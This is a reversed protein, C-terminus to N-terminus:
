LAYWYNGRKRGRCGRCSSAQWRATPRAVRRADLSEDPIPRVWNSGHVLDPLLHRTARGSVRRPALSSHTTSPHQCRSRRMCMRHYSRPVAELSAGEPPTRMTTHAPLYRVPAHIPLGCFQPCARPTPQRSLYMQDPSALSPRFCEPVPVGSCGVRGFCEVRRARARFCLM